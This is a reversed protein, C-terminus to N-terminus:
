FHEVVFLLDRSHVPQHHFHAWRTTEEEMKVKLNTKGQESGDIKEDESSSCFLDGADFLEGIWNNFLRCFITGLFIRSSNWISEVSVFPEGSRFSRTKMKKRTQGSLHAVLQEFLSRRRASRSASAEVDAMTSVALTWSAFFSWIIPLLNSKERSQLIAFSSRNTEPPNEQLSVAARQSPVERCLEAVTSFWHHTDAAFTQNCWNSDQEERESVVVLLM